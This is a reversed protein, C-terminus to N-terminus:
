RRLQDTNEELDHGPSLSQQNSDGEPAVTLQNDVRQVGKIEAARVEVMKKDQETPVSGKLTVVGNDATVTLNQALQHRMLGHTGTSEKVLRSKVNKALEDDSMSSRSEVSAANKDTSRNLFASGVEAGSASGVGHARNSQYLWNPERGTVDVQAEPLNGSENIRSNSSSSGSESAAAAGTADTNISTSFTSSQDHTIDSPRESTASSDFGDKSNLDSNIQSSSSSSGQESVASSGSAESPISDNMREDLDFQGSLNEEINQSSNLDTDWTGHPNIAVNGSADLDDLPATGTAAGSVSADNASSQAGHNGDKLMDDNPNWNPDRQISGDNYSSSHDYGASGGQATSGFDEFGRARMSGGRISSDAKIRHESHRSSSDSEFQTPRARDPNRAEVSGGRISSDAQVAPNLPTGSSDERGTQLDRMGRAENSGGRISSDAKFPAPSTGKLEGSASGKSSSASAGSASNYNYSLGPDVPRPTIMRGQADRELVETGRVSSDATDLQQQSAPHEQVSTENQAPGAQQNAAGAVCLIGAILISNKKMVDEKRLFHPAKVRSLSTGKWLDFEKLELPSCTARPSWQSKLFPAPPHDTFPQVACIWAQPNAVGIQTFPFNMSIKNWCIGPEPLVEPEYHFDEANVGM